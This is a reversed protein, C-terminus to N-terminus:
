VTLNGLDVMMEHNFSLSLFHCFIKLRSPSHEGQLVGERGDAGM